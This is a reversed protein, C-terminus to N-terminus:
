SLTYSVKNLSSVRVTLTEAKKQLRRFAIGLSIIAIALSAGYYRFPYYRLRFIIHFLNDVRLCFFITAALPSVQKGKQKYKVTKQAAELQYDTAPLDPEVIILRALCAYRRM